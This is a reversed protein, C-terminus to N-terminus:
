SINEAEMPKNGRPEGADWRATKRVDVGFGSDRFVQAGGYEDLPEQGLCWGIVQVAAKFVEKAAFTDDRTTPMSALTIQCAESVWKQPTQTKTWQKATKAGASAMLGELVLTCQIYNIPYFGQGSKYCVVPRIPNLNPSKSSATSVLSTYITLSGLVILALSPLLPFSSRLM